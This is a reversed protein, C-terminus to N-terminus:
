RPGAPRQLAIATAVNTRGEERFRVSVTSGVVIADERRTSLTLSFTMRGRDGSRAIVMRHGDIAQVTGRTAHTGLM